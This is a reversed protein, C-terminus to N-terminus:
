PMGELAQVVEASGLLRHFNRLVLVATGDPTALAALARIAALPDAAGNPTTPDDMAGALELGRDLDWTALAWGGQRCARQIEALADEPEHTRVWLAPFCARVYETLREALTM